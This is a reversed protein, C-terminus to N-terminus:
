GRWFHADPINRPPYHQGTSLALLRAVKMHQNDLFRPVEDEQFWLPRDSRYLSLKVNLM